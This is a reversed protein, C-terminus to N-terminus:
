SRLTLRRAAEGTLTKSRPLRFPTVAKSTLGQALGRRAGAPDTRRNGRVDDSGSAAAHEPGRRGRPALGVQHPHLTGAGGADYLRFDACFDSDRTYFTAFHEQEYSRM